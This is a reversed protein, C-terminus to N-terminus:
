EGVWGGTKNVLYHPSRGGLTKDESMVKDVVGTSDCRMTELLVSLTKLDMADVSSDGSADERSRDKLGRLIAPVSMLAAPNVSSSGGVQKSLLLQVVRAGVVGMRQTTVSVCLANREEEAMQVWGIMWLVDKRPGGTADGGGGEKERGGGGQTADTGGSSKAEEVVRAAGRGGRGGRGRGGRGARAVKAPPAERDEEARQLEPPGDGAPVNNQAMLARVEVPLMSLDETSAAAQRSRKITVKGNSAQTEKGLSEIAGGGSGDGDMLKNTKIAKEQRISASRLTEASAVYTNRSPAPVIFRNEALKEFMDEIDVRSHVPPLQSEIEPDLSEEDVTSMDIENSACVHQLAVQRAEKEQAQVDQVVQDFRLRGHFILEEALKVALEGYLNDITSLFKPFRLRNIVMDLDIRYLFVSAEGDILEVSTDPELKLCNQQLLIL